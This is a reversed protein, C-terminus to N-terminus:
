RGSILSTFRDSCGDTQLHLMWNMMMSLFTYCVVEM